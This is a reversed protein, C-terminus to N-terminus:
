QRRRIKNTIIYLSSIIISGIVDILCDTFQSTRGAVFSKHYEDTIAYIFSFVIVLIVKKIAYEKDTYANITLILLVALIAYETTHACKRLPMNLKNVVQDVHNPTSKREVNGINESINVTKEVTYKITQKSKKNSEETNMSSFIFIIMLWIVTIITYIIKQKM